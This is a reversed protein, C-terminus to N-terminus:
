SAAGRRKGDRGGRELLRAVIALLARPDVPKALHVQFGALLAHTRDEPDAYGTLAIAPMRGALIVGREAELARVRRLVDYGEMDPLGIDCVLLDPWTGAERLAALVGHGSALAEVRAGHSELVAAIAERADDHD